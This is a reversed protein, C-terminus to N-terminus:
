VDRIDVYLREVRDLPCKRALLAYPVVPAFFRPVESRVAAVWPAGPAHIIHCWDIGRAIAEQTVARVLKVAATSDTAFFDFLYWSRLEEGPAPINPWELSRLPWARTAARAARAPFALAEVREALIGQNSWATCGARSGGSEVLWSAIVGSARGEVFPDSYLDFSEQRRVEEHWAPPDIERARGADARRRYTPFVLYSYGGVFRAGSGLGLSGMPRNDGVMYLYDFDSRPAAWADLAEGIAKGVGRGRWRPHVRLDFYFAARTKSSALAVDKLAVAGIGVLRGGGRATVIRYHAFNDARRHFTARHFSLRFSKGQPCAQELAIAEDSQDPGYLGIEVRDAPSPASWSTTPSRM